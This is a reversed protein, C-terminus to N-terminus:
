HNQNPKKPKKKAKESINLNKRYIQNKQSLTTSYDGEQLFFNNFNKAGEARYTLM